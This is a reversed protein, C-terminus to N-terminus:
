SVNFRAASYALDAIAHNPSLDPHHGSLNRTNIKFCARVWSFAAARNAAARLEMVISREGERDERLRAM